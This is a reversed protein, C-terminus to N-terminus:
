QVQLRYYHQSDTPSVSLSSYAGIVETWPGKVSTAELLKATATGNGLLQWTLFQGDFNLTPGGAGAFYLSQLQDATMAYNFIAVDDIRGAFTRDTALADQGILTTGAFASNANAVPNVGYVAGQANMQYITADDPTIVLAVFSWQNLPPLCGSTQYQYTASNDNWNYGLAGTNGAYVLGCTTGSSRSFIIAGNNVQATPYIWATFTVTNTNLNLPPLSIPVGGAQFRAAGNPGAFGVFPPGTIGNFYNQVATAYIGPLGGVHDYAGLKNAPNNTENLEYFVVPYNTVIAKAYAGQAAVTKLSVVSSTVSGFQNTIIVSYNNAIDGAAVGAINIINSTSGTIISGSGTVGDALATSGKYWQYSLPVGGSVAVSWTVNSSTTFIEQNVPQTTVKPAPPGVDLQYNDIYYTVPGAPQNPYTPGNWNQFWFAPGRWTGSGPPIAIAVHQWNTAAAAPITYEGFKPSTSYPNAAYVQITGYNGATNPISTPDVLIDFEINTYGNLDVQLSSGNQAYGSFFVSQSNNNGNDGAVSAEGYPLYLSLSGSVPNTKADNPSWSFTPLINYWTTWNPIVTDYTFTINTTQASAITGSVALVLGALVLGLRKIPNKKM